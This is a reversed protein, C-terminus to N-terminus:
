LLWEQHWSRSTCLKKPRLQWFIQRVLSRCSWSKRFIRSIRQNKKLSDIWSRDLRKTSIDLEDENRWWIPQPSVRIRIWFDNLEPPCEISGKCQCPAILPDDKTVDLCWVCCSPLHASFRKKLPIPCKAHCKPHRKLFFCMKSIIWFQIRWWCNKKNVFQHINNSFFWRCEASILM